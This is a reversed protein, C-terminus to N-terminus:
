REYIFEKMFEEIPQSIMSGFTPRTTPVYTVLYDETNNVHYSIAFITISKTMEGPHERPLYRQGVEIQRNGGKTIDRWFAMGGGCKSCTAPMANPAIYGVFKDGFQAGCDQCTRMWVRKTM